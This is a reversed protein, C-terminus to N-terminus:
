RIIPTGCPKNWQICRACRSRGSEWWCNTLGRWKCQQCRAAFRLIDQATAAKCKKEEKTCLDCVRSGNEFNCRYAANAGRTHCRTCCHAPPPDAYTFTPTPASAPSMTATNLTGLCRVDTKVSCYRFGKGRTSSSGGKGAAGSRRASPTLTSTDPYIAAGRKRSTVSKQEYQHKTEIVEQGHDDTTRARTRSSRRLSAQAIEM